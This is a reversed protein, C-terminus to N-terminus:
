KNVWKHCENKPVKTSRHSNYSNCHSTNLQKKWNQENATRGCGSVLLESHKNVATTTTMSQHANNRTFLHVSFCYLLYFAKPDRATKSWRISHRYVSTCVHALGKRIDFPLHWLDCTVTRYTYPTTPQSHRLRQFIGDAFNVWSTNHITHSVM